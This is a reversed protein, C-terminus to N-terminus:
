ERACRVAPYTKCNRESKISNVFALMETALDRETIDKQAQLDFLRTKHERLIGLLRFLEPRDSTGWRDQSEIYVTGVKDAEVLEM